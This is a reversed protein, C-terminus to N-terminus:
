RTRRLRWAAGHLVAVGTTAAAAAAILRALSSLPLDPPVAFRAAKVAWWVILLSFALLIGFYVTPPQKPKTDGSVPRLVAWRSLLAGAAFSAAFALSVGAVGFAPVLLICLLVNVGLRAAVIHCYQWHKRTAFLCRCGLAELVWFPIALAHGWLGWATTVSAQTDFRGHELIFQVVDHRQLILWLSAPALTLVILRGADRYVYRLQPLDGHAALAAAFPFLASFLILDVVGVPMQAISYSYNLCSIAGTGIFSAVANMFLVNVQQLLTLAVLPAVLAAMERLLPSGLSPRGFTFDQRAAAAQILALVVFAVPLAAAVPVLGWDAPALILAGVLSASILLGDVSVLLYRDHCANFAKLLSAPIAFLVALGTLRLLSAAAMRTNPDGGPALLALIPAAGLIALAALILAAMSGLLAVAALYGPANDERYRRYVPVFSNYLLSDAILYVGIPLSKALMYADTLTGAGFKHAIFIGAAAQFVKTFLGVAAILIMPRLLPTYWRDTSM